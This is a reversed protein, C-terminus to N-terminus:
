LNYNSNNSLFKIFIVNTSHFFHDGVVERFAFLSVGKRQVGATGQICGACKFRLSYMSVSEGSKFVIIGTIQLIRQM